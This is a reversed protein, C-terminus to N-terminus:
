KGGLADPVRVLSDEYPDPALIDLEYLTAEPDCPHPGAEPQPVKKLQFTWTYPKKLFLSDELTVTASLLDPSTKRYRETVKKLFSSPLLTNDEMGTPDFTFNTTEIVLDGNEYWGITHGQYFLKQLSPHPRGDMHAIRYEQEDNSTNEIQLESVTLENFTTIGSDLYIPLTPPTCYWKSALREDAFQLWALARGNLYNKKLENFPLSCKVGPQGLANKQESCAEKDNFGKDGFREWSGTFDPHDTVQLAKTSAPRQAAVYKPCFLIVNGVLFTVAITINWAPRRSFM